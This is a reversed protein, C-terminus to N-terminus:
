SSLTSSEVLQANLKRDNFVVLQCRKRCQLQQAPSAGDVGHLQVVQLGVLGHALAPVLLAGDHSQGARVVVTGQSGTGAKGAEAGARRGVVARTPRTHTIARPQLTPPFNPVVGIHTTTSTSCFFLTDPPCHHAQPCM